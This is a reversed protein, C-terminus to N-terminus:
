NNETGGLYQHLLSNLNINMDKPDSSGHKILRHAVQTDFVRDCIVNHQVALASSDEIFDHFVKVISDDELVKKLSKPFSELKTM